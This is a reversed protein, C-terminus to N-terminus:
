AGSRGKRVVGDGVSTVEGRFEINQRYKIVKDM